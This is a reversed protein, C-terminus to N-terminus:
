NNSKVTEQEDSNTFDYLMELEHSRPIVSSPQNNVSVYQMELVIMSEDMQLIFAVGYQGKLEHKKNAAIDKESVSRLV